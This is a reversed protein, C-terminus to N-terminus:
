EAKTKHHDPEASHRLFTVFRLLWTIFTKIGAVSTLTHRQLGHTAILKLTAPKPQENQPICLQSPFRSCVDKQPHHIPIGEPMSHGHKRHSQTQTNVRFMELFDTRNRLGERWAQKRLKALSCVLVEYFSVTSHLVHLNRRKRKRFCCGKPWNLQRM